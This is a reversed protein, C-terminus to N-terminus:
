KQNTVLMGSEELELAWNEIMNKIRTQFFDKERVECIRKSLEEIQDLVISTRDEEVPTSDKVTYASSELEKFTFWGRSIGHDDSFSILVSQTLVELVAFEEEDEDVVVDGVELTYLTKPGVLEWKEQCSCAGGAYLRGDGSAELTLVKGKEHGSCSYKMKIRDGVKYKYNM